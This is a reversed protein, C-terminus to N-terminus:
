KDRTKDYEAKQGVALTVMTKREKNEIEVKGEVLTTETKPSSPYSKVNFSTGLVKVTYNETAVRFPRSADKTISFYAEGDLYVNREGEEWNEVKLTSSPTLWILSGDPLQIEKINEGVAVTYLMETNEKITDQYNIFWVSMILILAVAAVSCWMFLQRSIPRKKVEPISPIVINHLESEFKDIRRIDYIEELEFLHKQNEKDAELWLLVENLEEPTCSNNLYKFIIHDNIKNM